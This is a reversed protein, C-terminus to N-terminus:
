HLVISLYLRTLISIFCRYGHNKATILYTYENQHTYNTACEQNLEYVGFSTGM